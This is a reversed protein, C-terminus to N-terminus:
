RICKRVHVKWGVAGPVAAFPEWGEPLPVEEVIQNPPVNGQVM